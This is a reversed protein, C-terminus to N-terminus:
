EVPNEGGEDTASASGEENTYWNTWEWPEATVRDLYVQAEVMMNAHQSTVRDREDPEALEIAREAADGAMGVLAARVLESCRRGLDDSTDEPRVLPGSTTTAM